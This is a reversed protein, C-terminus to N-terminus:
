EAAGARLVLSKEVGRWGYAERCVQYAKELEAQPVPRLAADRPARITLPRPALTAALDPLDYVTLVGPVVSSLQNYSVPTHAVNSWRVLGHDVTIHKISRELAAANLPMPGALGVGVM